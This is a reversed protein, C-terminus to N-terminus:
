ARVQEFESEVFTNAEVDDKADSKGVFQFALTVRRLTTSECLIHVVEGAPRIIEFIWGRNAALGSGGAQRQCLRNSIYARRIPEKGNRM